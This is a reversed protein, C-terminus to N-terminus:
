IKDRAVLLRSKSRILKIIQELVEQNTGEKFITKKLNYEKFISHPKGEARLNDFEEKLLTDVRSNIPHGPTGPPKIQHKELLYFCLPCKIFSDWKSRSIAM